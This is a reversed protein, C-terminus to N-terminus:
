VSMADEDINRAMALRLSFVALILTVLTFAREFVTKALLNGVTNLTFIAFMVWMGIHASKRLGALRLCEAKILTLFLCIVQVILSISELLLFEQKSQIRGGWLFDLPVFNFQLIGIVVACHFLILCGFIVM